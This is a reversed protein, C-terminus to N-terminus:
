LERINTLITKVLDDDPIKLFSGQLLEEFPDKVDNFKCILWWLKITGYFKYSINTWSDGYKIEYISYLSEPIYDVNKFNITKNINFYSNEGLEVVNFLNAFNYMDLKDVDNKMIENYKM